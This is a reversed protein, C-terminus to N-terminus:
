ALATDLVMMLVFGIMLGGTAFGEHGSRHSEPIM